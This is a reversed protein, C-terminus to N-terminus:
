VPIGNRIWIDDTITALDEVPYVDDGVPSKFFQQNQAAVRKKLTNRTQKKVGDPTHNFLPCVVRGSCRKNCSRCCYNSNCRLKCDNCASLDAGVFMELLKEM